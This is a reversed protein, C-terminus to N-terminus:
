SKSQSSPYDLVRMISEKIYETIVKKTNKDRRLIKLFDEASNKQQVM